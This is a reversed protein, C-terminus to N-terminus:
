MKAEQKKNRYFTSRQALIKSGFDKTDFDPEGNGNRIRLKQPIGSILNLFKARSHLSLLASLGM